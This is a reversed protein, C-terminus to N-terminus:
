LTARQAALQELIEDLMKARLLAADRRAVDAYTMAHLQMEYTAAIGRQADRHLTVLTKAADLTARAAHTGAIRMARRLHDPHSEADLRTPYPLADIMRDLNASM